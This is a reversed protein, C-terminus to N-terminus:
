GLRADPELGREERLQRAKARIPERLQQARAKGGLKGLESAARSPSIRRRFFRAIM